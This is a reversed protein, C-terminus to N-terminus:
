YQWSNVAWMCSQGHWLASPISNLLKMQEQRLFSPSFSLARWTMDLFVQFSCVTQFRASILTFLARHFSTFQRQNTHATLILLTFITFNLNLLLNKWAKLRDLSVQQESTKSIQVSHKDEHPILICPILNQLMHKNSTFLLEATATLTRIQINQGDLKWSYNWSHM